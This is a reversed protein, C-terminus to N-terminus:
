VKFPSGDWPRYLSKSGARLLRIDGKVCVPKFTAFTDIRTDSPHIYGDESYEMAVRVGWVKTPEVTLSKFVIRDETSVVYPASVIIPLEVVDTLYATNNLFSRIVDHKAGLPISKKFRHYSIQRIDDVTCKDLTDPHIANAELQLFM